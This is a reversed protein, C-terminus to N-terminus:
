ASPTFSIVFEPCYPLLFFVFLFSIWLAQKWQHPLVYVLISVTPSYAWLATRDDLPLAIALACSM